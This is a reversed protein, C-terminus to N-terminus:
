ELKVAVTTTGNWASDVFFPLNGSDLGAITKSASGGASDFKGGTGTYVLQFLSPDAHTFNDNFLVEEGPLSLPTRDFPILTGETPNAPADTPGSVPTPTPPEATAAGPERQVAPLTAGTPHLM